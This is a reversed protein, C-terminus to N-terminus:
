IILFYHRMSLLLCLSFIARYVARWHTEQFVIFWEEPPKNTYSLTSTDRPNALHALTQGPCMQKHRMVVCESPGPYLSLPILCGLHLIDRSSRDKLTDAWDARVSVSRLQSRSPGTSYYLYKEQIPSLSHLAQSNPSLPTLLPYPRHGGGSPGMFCLCNATLQTRNM